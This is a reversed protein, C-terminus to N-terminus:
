NGIKNVQSHNNGYTNITQNITRGIQGSSVTVPFTRLRTISLAIGFDSTRNDQLYDGEVLVDTKKGLKFLVSPNVYYRESKVVDRFSNAKEFSTNLRYAINKSIPGFLDIAPKYLDNSGARFALEGGQDFKPKKTVLNLVGGAAVNGFLIVSSGKMVEVKELGSMEPMIANNFRAGNKFTNSSNFAYGRGGIEEQAGGTTGYVYVGNVNMLVDSLRLTQQRELINKGSVTVSQPLDMPEIPIKGVSVPKENLGKFGTVIVETLENQNEHLRFDIECVQNGGCHLVRQQSQLGVSSIIVTYDGEKLNGLFSGDEM